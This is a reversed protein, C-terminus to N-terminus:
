LDAEARSHFVEIEWGSQESLVEWMRSLGYGLNTPASVACRAGSPIIAALRRDQTSWAISQFDLTLKEMSTHDIVGYRV